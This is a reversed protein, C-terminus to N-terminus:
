FRPNARRMRVSDQLLSVRIRNCVFLLVGIFATRGLVLSIPDPVHIGSLTELVDFGDTFIVITMVIFFYNRQSSIAPFSYFVKQADHGLDRPM